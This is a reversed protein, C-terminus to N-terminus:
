SCFCLSCNKAPAFDYLCTLRMARLPLALQPRPHTARVTDWYARKQSRPPLLRHHVWLNHLIIAEVDDDEGQAGAPRKAKLFGLHPMKIGDRM